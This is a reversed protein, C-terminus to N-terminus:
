RYFECLRDKTAESMSTARINRIHDTWDSALGRPEVSIRDQSTDVMAWQGSATSRDRPQGVSGITFAEARKGAHHRFRHTHGFLGWKFGRLGLTSCAVHMQEPTALYRWDGYPFPNAHAALLSGISWEKHWPLGSLCEAGPMHARTWDVSEKIWDPLRGHYDTLGQALDLYLQDHNGLILVAGDRAVADNTLDLTRRPDAGYTLLDGLVLLRDFGENRADDLAAEYAEAAGHIDSLVAIKM